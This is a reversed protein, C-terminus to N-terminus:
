RLRKLPNSTYISQDEADKRRMIAHTFYLRGNSKVAARTACFYQIPIKLMFPPNHLIYVGKAFSDLILIIM